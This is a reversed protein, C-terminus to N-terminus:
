SVVLKSCPGLEADVGAWPLTLPQPLGKLGQSGTSTEPTTTLQDQTLRQIIDVVHDEQSGNNGATGASRGNARDKAHHISESM